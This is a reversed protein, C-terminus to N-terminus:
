LAAVPSGLLFKGYPDHSALLAEVASRLAPRGACAEALFAVRDGAPRALAEHFLSEENM